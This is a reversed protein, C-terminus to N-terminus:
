VIQKGVGLAFLTETAAPTLSVIKTPAAALSVKTGEDDTITTPFAPAESPSPSPTATAAPPASAPATPQGSPSTSAGSTCAVLVIALVFTTMFRALHRTSISIRSRTNM